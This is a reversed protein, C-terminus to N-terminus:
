SVKQVDALHRPLIDEKDQYSMKLVDQLHRIGSQSFLFMSYSVGVIYFNIIRINYLKHINYLIQCLVPLFCLFHWFFFLLFVIKGFSYTSFASQYVRTSFFSSRLRFICLVCHRLKNLIYFKLYRNIVM